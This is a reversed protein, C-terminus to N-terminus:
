EEEQAKGEEAHRDLQRLRTEVLHMGEPWYLNRDRWGSDEVVKRVEDALAELRGARGEPVPSSEESEVNGGREGYFDPAGSRVEGTEPDYYNTVEYGTTRRGRPADPPDGAGAHRLEDGVDEGALDPYYFGHSTYWRIASGRDLDLIEGARAVSMKGRAVLSLLIAELAAREPEPGLVDLIEEPLEVKRSM